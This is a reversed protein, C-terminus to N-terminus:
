RSMKIMKKQKYSVITQWRTTEVPAIGGDSGESNDGIFINFIKGINTLKDHHIAVVRRRSSTKKTSNLRM